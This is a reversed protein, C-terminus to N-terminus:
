PCQSDNFRIPQVGAPGLPGEGTLNKGTVLYIYGDSPPPSAADTTDPLGNTNADTDIGCALQCAGATACFDSTRLPVAAGVLSLEGRYVNYALARDTITWELLTDAGTRSLLLQVVENPSVPSLVYTEGADTPTGPLSDAFPAGVLGDDVGDANLDAGGGVSAGLEDGTELGEVSLGPETLGISSLAIEEAGMGPSGYVLYVKGADVRGDPDALPAGVVFDEVGDNNVDGAPGVELGGVDGDDGPVFASAGFTAVVNTGDPTRLARAFNSPGGTRSSITTGKPGDGPVWWAENKGGFIVDDEGDGDVDVAGTVSRGIRGHARRGLFVTGHVQDAQGNALRGMEIVGPTTTDDLNGLGGHIAYVLGADQMPDGYEDNVTADPAGILLDDIGDEENDEWWSISSGCRDGASEGNLVLGETTAGQPVSGVDALNITGPGLPGYILYVKGSDAGNADAYPAGIALDDNGDNNIDGAYAISAGAGDGPSEGIFIVGCRTADLCHQSEDLDITTPAQEDLGADGFVLYVYGSGGGADPAGILFDAVGDKVGTGSGVDGARAVTTGIRDGPLAGALEYRM